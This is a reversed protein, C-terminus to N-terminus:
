LCSTHVVKHTYTSVTKVPVWKKFKWHFKCEMYVHKNLDVWKDEKPNQFEDEDDSEEIKDLDAIEPINRFLRNMYISTQYDPINAIGYYVFTRNRGYAFLHYVDFQIDATVIFVTPFRYQSKTIDMRMPIATPVFRNTKVATAAPSPAGGMANGSSDQPSALPFVVSKRTPIVNYYPGSQRTCRYQIHHTVYPLPQITSWQNGLHYECEYEETKQIKWLMPLAIRYKDNCHETTYETFYDYLISLRDKFQLGKTTIGKYYLVDDIIFVPAATPPMPHDRLKSGNGSHASDIMTGYFLTGKALELPIERGGSLITTKIPKKERNLDLQFCVHNDEYFTYWLFIKKGIPIALCINYDISVKKHPITEYSLEIKPFRQLLQHTQYSDFELGMGM